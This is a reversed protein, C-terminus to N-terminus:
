AAIGYRRLREVMEALEERFQAVARSLEAIYKVDRHARRVFLPLKPWYVALDCWERETVWLFGQVQAVHQSPFAGRDLIEILVSPKATKIEVGGTDGVFSDPSCGAGHNKVFGIREPTADAMFAYARRADDEMANGRAMADGKFGEEPEGTLIEGALRRMYAARTKGEGKALISSFESATPVGCRAARWEPTGQEIDKFIEIPM